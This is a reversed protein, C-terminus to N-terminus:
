DLVQWLKVHRARCPFRKVQYIDLYEHASKKLCFVLRACQDRLFRSVGKVNAM